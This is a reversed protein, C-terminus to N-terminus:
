FFVYMNQIILNQNTLLLYLKTSVLQVPHWPVPQHHARHWAVLLARHGELLVLLKLLEEHLVLPAMQFHNITKNQKYLNYTDYFTIRFNSSQFIFSHFYVKTQKISKNFCNICYLRKLYYILVQVDIILCKYKSTYYQLTSKSPTGTSRQPTEPVVLQQSSRTRRSPTSADSSAQSSPRKSPTSM